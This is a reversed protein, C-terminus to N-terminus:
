VESLVAIKDLSESSAKDLTEFFPKLVFPSQVAESSSWEQKFDTVSSEGDRDM